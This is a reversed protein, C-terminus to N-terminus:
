GHAPQHQTPEGTLGRMAPRARLTLPESRKCPSELCGRIERARLAPCLVQTGYARCMEADPTGALTM